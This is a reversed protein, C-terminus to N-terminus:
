KVVLRRLVKEGNTASFLVNYVGNSLSKTDIVVEPNGNAPIDRDIIIRGMIDVVKMNYNQKTDIAIASKGNSPNPYFKGFFQDAILSETRVQQFLCFDWLLLKRLFSHCGGEM